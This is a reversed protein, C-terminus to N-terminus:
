RTMGALREPSTVASGCTGGSCVYAVAGAPDEPATVTTSWALRKQLEALGRANEAFAVELDLAPSTQAVALLQQTLETSRRGIVLLLRRTRGDLLRERAAALRPHAQPSAALARELQQSVASARQVFAANGTIAGLRTLLVVAAANPEREDETERLPGLSAPLLSVSGYIGDDARWFRADLARQAEVALDLWRMDFSARYLDLMAIGFLAYDAADGPVDRGVKHQLSKSKANWARLLARGADFAAQAYRPESLQRSARVLVPIMEATGAVDGALDAAPRPRVSRVHLMTAIARAYEADDVPAAVPPRPLNRGVFTRYPDLDQPVNGGPRLGYVESIRARQKEGVIRGLEAFDWAYYIGYFLKQPADPYLSYGDELTAFSGNDFRLDRVVYDMTSRATVAFDNEGTLAHARLYADALSVQDALRKEFLPMSRGADITARFFGGGLHDHLGSRAYKRLTGLAAVKAAQDDARQARELLALVRAADVLRPLGEDFGGSVPDYGSSLRESISASLASADGKVVPLPADIARRIAAIRASSETTLADREHAWRNAAVTLFRSLEPSTTALSSALPQADASALIFTPGYTREADNGAFTDYSSAVLPFDGRDLLVPVFYTGLLKVIEADAFTDYAMATCPACGVEGVYVLMPRQSRRSAEFAAAGWPQWPVTTARQDTVWRSTAAFVSMPPIPPADARPVRAKPAASAGLTAALAVVSVMRRLIM